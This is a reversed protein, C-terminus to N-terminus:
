NSFVYDSIFQCADNYVPITAALVGHKLLVIPKNYYIKQGQCDTMRGGAESLILDAACVDYESLQRSAVHAYWEAKGEAVMCIMLAASGRGIWSAQSQKLSRTLIDERMSSCVLRAEGWNICKSVTLPLSKEGRLLVAGMGRQAIYSEGTVPKHVVGYIPKHQSAMGETYAISVSFDDRGTVFNNTGDLPDVIFLKSSELRDPNDDSEESFVPIDPFSENLYSVIAANSERDADTVLEGTEKTELGSKMQGNHYYQMLIDGAKQAFHLIETLIEPFQNM